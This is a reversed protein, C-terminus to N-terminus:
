FSAIFVSNLLGVAIGFLVLLVVDDLLFVIMKM